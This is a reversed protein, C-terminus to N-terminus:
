HRGSENQIATQGTRFISWVLVSAVVGVTAILTIYVAATPWALSAVTM